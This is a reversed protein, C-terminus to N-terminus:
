FMQLCLPCHAWNTELPSANPVNGVTDGSTKFKHVFSVSFLLFKPFIFVRRKGLIEEKSPLCQNLRPGIPRLSSMSFSYKM